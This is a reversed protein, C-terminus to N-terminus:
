DTAADSADPLSGADSTGPGGESGAEASADPVATPAGGDGIPAECASNTAQAPNSPCCRARFNLSPQLGPAPNECVLGSSCDSDAVCFEGEGQGNCGTSALSVVGATLGVVTACLRFAAVFSIRM